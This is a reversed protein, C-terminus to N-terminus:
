MNRRFFTFMKKVATEGDSSPKANDCLRTETGSRVGSEHMEASYHWELSNSRFNLLESSLSWVLHVRCDSRTLNTM